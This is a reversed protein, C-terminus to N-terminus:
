RDALNTPRHLVAVGGDIFSMLWQNMANEIRVVVIDSLDLARPVMEGEVTEDVAHMTSAVVSDDISLIFDSSISSTGIWVTRAGGDISARYVHADIRAAMKATHPLYVNM